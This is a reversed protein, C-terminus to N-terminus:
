RSLVITMAQLFGGASNLIRAVRPELVYVGNARRIIKAELRQRLLGVSLGGGTFYLRAAENQIVKVTDTLNADIIQKLLGPYKKELLGSLSQNEGNLLIEDNALANQIVIDSLIVNPYDERLREAVRRAISITGSGVGLPGGSGLLNVIGTQRNLIRKVLYEQSHGGGFDILLEERVPSPLLTCNVGYNLAFWSGSTQPYPITEVMNLVYVEKKMEGEKDPGMREVEFVRGDIEGLALATAEKLDGADFENCPIGFGSIINYTTNGHYNASKLAEVKAAVLFLRQRQDYLREATSGVALSLTDRNGYQLATDGILFWDSWSGHPTGDTMMERVRYQVISVKTRMQPVPCTAADIAVTCLKNEKAALLSIKNRYNGNDDGIIICKRGVYDGDKYTYLHPLAVGDNTLLPKETLLLSYLSDPHITSTTSQAVISSVM